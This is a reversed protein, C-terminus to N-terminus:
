AAEPEPEGGGPEEGEPPELLLSRLAHWWAAQLSIRRDLGCLDRFWTDGQLWGRLAEREKEPIAEEIIEAWSEPNSNVSAASVLAPLYPRILPVFPRFAESVQLVPREVKPPQGGKGATLADVTKEISPTLKEIAYLFPSAPGGERGGSLMMGEKVLKVAELLMSGQEGSGSSGLLGAARLAALKGLFAEEGDTKKEQSLHAILATLLKEQFDSAPRGQLEIM